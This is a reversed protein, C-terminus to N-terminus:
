IQERCPRAALAAEFALFLVVAWPFLSPRLLSAEGLHLALFGRVSLVIAPFAEADTRVRAARFHAALLLLLGAVWLAAGPLKDPSVDAFPRWVLCASAAAAGLGFAASAAVTARRGFRVAITRYGTARDAEVDKLYGLLVFVAYSAFVSAMAARPAPERLLGEASGGAALFAMAPLLAVVAANCVPGGWWRRKLPTYGVLGAIALASLLLNWGNLLALAAGCVVLGTLSVALVATRRIEGRVLPRYPSSLADTDTQFVDTLAQGLGYSLFFAAFALMFEERPLPPGVALGVLGAVGSVFLLYPRLTVAFAPWFGRASVGFPPAPAITSM